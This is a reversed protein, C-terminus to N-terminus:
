RYDGRALTDELAIETILIQELCFLDHFDSIDDKESQALQGIEILNFVVQGIDDTTSINWLRFVTFAMQGFERVALACVGRCLEEGNVHYDADPDDYEEPQKDFLEQTHELADCLFQYAEAPYRRDKRLYEVLKQDMM